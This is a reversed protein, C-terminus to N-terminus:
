FYQCKYTEGYRPFNHINLRLILIAYASKFYVDIYTKLCSANIQTYGISWDFSLQTADHYSVHLNAIICSVLSLNLYNLNCNYFNYWLPNKISM